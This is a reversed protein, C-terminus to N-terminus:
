VLQLDMESLAELLENEVEATLEVPGDIGEIGEWRIVEVNVAELAKHGAVVGANEVDFRLVADAGFNKSIVEITSEM